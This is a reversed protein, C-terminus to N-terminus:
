RSRKKVRTFRHELLQLFGPRAFFDRIQSAIPIEIFFSTNEYHTLDRSCFSNPCINLNGEVQLFCHSCYRHFKMPAKLKHFHKKLEFISKMCLNPSLCHASILTLMDSLNEEDEKKDQTFCVFDPMSMDLADGNTEEEANFEQEVHTLEEHLADQIKALYDHLWAIELYNSSNEEPSSSITSEVNPLLSSEHTHDTELNEMSISTEFVNLPDEDRSNDQYEMPINLESFFSSSAQASDQRTTSHEWHELVHANDEAARAMSKQVSDVYSSSEMYNGTLDRRVEEKTRRKRKSTPQANCM